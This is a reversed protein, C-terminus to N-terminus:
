FANIADATATPKVFPKLAERNVIDVPGDFLSAIHDELGVYEYAGIRATPDIEIM